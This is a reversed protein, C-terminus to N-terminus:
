RGGWFRAAPCPVDVAISAYIAALDEADPARFFFSPRSAMAELAELDLDDGLGITYVM